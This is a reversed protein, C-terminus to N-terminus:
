VINRKIYIYDTIQKYLFILFGDVKRLKTKRDWEITRSYNRSSITISEDKIILTNEPDDILGLAYKALRCGVLYTRLPSICLVLSVYLLELQSMSFFYNCVGIVLFILCGTIILGTRGIYVKHVARLLEAALEKTWGYTVTDNM